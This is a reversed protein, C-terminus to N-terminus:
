PVKSCTGYNTYTVGSVTYKFAYTWTEPDGGNSWFLWEVKDGKDPYSKGLYCGDDDIWALQVHSTTTLYAMQYPILPMNNVFFTDAAPCESVPVNGAASDIHYQGVPLKVPADAFADTIMLTPLPLFLMALALFFGYKKLM